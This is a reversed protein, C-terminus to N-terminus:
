NEIFKQEKHNLSLKYSFYQGVLDNTTKVVVNPRIILNQLKTRHQGKVVYRLGHCIYTYMYVSVCTTTRPLTLKTINSLEIELGKINNKFTM